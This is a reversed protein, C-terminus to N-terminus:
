LTMKVSREGIREVVMRERGSFAVQTASDAVQASGLLKGSLDYVAIPTGPAAGELTIGGASRKM